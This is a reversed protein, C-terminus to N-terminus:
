EVAETMSRMRGMSNPTVPATTNGVAGGAIEPSPSNPPNVMSSCSRPPWESSSNPLTVWLKMPASRESLRMPPSNLPKVVLSGCNTTLM